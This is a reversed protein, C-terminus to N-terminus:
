RGTKRPHKGIFYTGNQPAVFSLHESKNPGCEDIATMRFGVRQGKKFRNTLICNDPADPPTFLAIDGWIVLKGSPHGAQPPPPAAPQGRGQQGQAPAQGGGALLSATTATVVILCASVALTQVTKM